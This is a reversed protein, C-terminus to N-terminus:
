CRGVLFQLYAPGPLLQHKSEIVPKAARPQVPSIQRTCMFRRRWSVQIDAVLWVPQFATCMMPRPLYLTVNVRGGRGLLILSVYSGTSERESERGMERHRGKVVKYLPQSPDSILSVAGTCPRCMRRVHATHIFPQGNPWM